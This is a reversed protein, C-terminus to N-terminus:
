VHEITGCVPRGAQLGPSGGQSIVAGRPGDTELNRDDRYGFVAPWLMPQSVCRARKRQSPVAECRIQQYMSAAPEGCLSAPGSLGLVRLLGTRSVHHRM